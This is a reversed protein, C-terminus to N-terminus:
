LYLAINLNAVALLVLSFLRKYGYILSCINIRKIVRIHKSDVAGLSCPFYTHSKFNDFIAKREEESTTCAAFM